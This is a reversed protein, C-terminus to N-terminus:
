VHQLLFLFLIVLYSAHILLFSFVIPSNITFENYTMFCSLSKLFLIAKFTKSILASNLATSKTILLQASCIFVYLHSTQALCMELKEKSFTISTKFPLFLIVTLASSPKFVTSIISRTYAKFYNDRLKIIKM